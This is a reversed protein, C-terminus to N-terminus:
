ESPLGAAPTAAPAPGRFLRVLAPVGILATLLGGAVGCVVVIGMSSMSPNRAPIMTGLGVATTIASILVGTGATGLTDAVSRRAGRGMLRDVVFVGYDISLGLAIAVGCVNAFNLPVELTATMGAVTLFAAACPLLALVVPIPRRYYFGLVLALAAFCIGGLRVLERKVELLLKQALDVFSLVLTGPAAAELAISIDVPFAAAEVDDDSGSVTEVTTLVQTYEDTIAIRRGLM